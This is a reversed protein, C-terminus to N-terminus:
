LRMRHILPKKLVWCTHHHVRALLSRISEPDEVESYTVFNERAYQAYYGRSPPPLRKVLKLVERYAQKVAQSM